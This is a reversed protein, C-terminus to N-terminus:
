NEINQFVKGEEKRFTEYYGLHDSGDYDRYTTWFSSAKSMAIVRPRCRSVQKVPAIGLKEVVLQSLRLEVARGLGRGRFEPFTFQHTLHGYGSNYEFSVIRGSEEHQVGVTPMNKMRSRAQEVDGRGTAYLMQATTMEVDRDADLEVFSFGDPLTIEETMLRKRQPDTMYFMTYPDHCTVFPHSGLIDFEKRVNQLIFDSAIFQTADLDLIRDKVLEFLEHVGRAIVDKDETSAQMVFLTVTYRQKKLALWLVPKEKPYGFLEMTCEDITGAVYLKVCNYVTVLHPFVDLQAFAGEFDKPPVQFAM